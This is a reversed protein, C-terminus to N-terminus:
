RGGRLAALFSLAQGLWNRAHQQWLSVSHGGPYVAFTHRIREASLASDFARNDALFNQYGDQNGIYFGIFTPQRQLALALAAGRPARAADNAASSGLDLIHQGSPDTAEFYGSWAEVAGYTGLNRLGINMAGFGGASFGVLARGSRTPITRFRADICRPLDRAIAQPWNEASDKDLYEPDSDPSRAGQPAVVIASRSGTAVAAAVFGSGTYTQPGAPLGHLVYIVPYRRAGTRYGAPLYVLAPLAGGLSPSPCGVLLTSALSVRDPGHTSPRTVRRALVVAATIALILVLITSARWRRM